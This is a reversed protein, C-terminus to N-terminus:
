YRGSFMLKFLAAEAQDSFWVGKEYANFHHKCNGELWPGIDEDFIKAARDIEADHGVRMRDQTMIGLEQWFVTASTLEVVVVGDEEHEEDSAM